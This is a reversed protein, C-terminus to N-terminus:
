NKVTLLYCYNKVLLLIVLCVAITFTVQIGKEVPATSSPTYYYIVVLLTIFYVGFLATLLRKLRNLHRM